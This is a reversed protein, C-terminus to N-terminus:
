KKSANRAIRKKSPEMFAHNYPVNLMNAYFIELRVIAIIKGAANVIANAKKPDGKDTKLLTIQESLTNRLEEANM